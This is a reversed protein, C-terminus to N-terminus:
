GRMPSPIVEFWAYGATTTASTGDVLLAVRDRTDRGSFYIPLEFRRGQDAGSFAPLIGAPPTWMRGAERFAEVSATPPSATFAGLHFRVTTLGADSDSIVGFVRTVVERNSVIGLDALVLAATGSLDFGVQRIRISM